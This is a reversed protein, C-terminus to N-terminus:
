KQNAATRDGSERTGEQQYTNLKLLRNLPCRQILGTVLLVTGVLFTIAATLAQPLPGVALSFLGVYGAVGALLLVPGIVLRAARDVGGVNKKM